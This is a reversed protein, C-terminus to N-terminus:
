QARKDTVIVAPDHPTAYLRAVIKARATLAASQNIYGKDTIEGADMSPPTRLVLARGIRTSSGPNKANYAEFRTRLADLLKREALLDPDNGGNLPGCVKECSELDPFGLVGIYNRDLGAIVADRLLGRAADIVAIRLKGANVWVGTALKFDEAVRGDFILGKEPDDPDAFRAGDGLKYFGEDDFAAATKEADRYYGPTICAGRARVEMKSGVPSLKIEVGPLPLGLLGMQDTPWQVSMITPATETAGYGSLFLIREGCAKVAINQMREAMERGMAAGGYALNRLRSFFTKALDPEAEFADALMGYAIPVNSYVTPAVDRLAAITEDFRGPLPRGRDLYLTSGRVLATNLIASGGFVHNWPLWSLLVHHDFGPPDVTLKAGMVSNICIMGHTTIVAKPMATSGSTFLYKAVTDWNLGAERAASEPGPTARLLDDYGIAGPPPNVRAIMKVNKFGPRGALADLARAYPKADEVFIMQPRILDFAHILKAFDASMLSWAESVPAIAAGALNAAYHIVAHPISNGSLIMLRDGAKLGLEILGAAAAAIQKEAQAYTLTTWVGPRAPGPPREALCVRDGFEGANKRLPAILNPPPDGMPNLNRLLIEGNARREADLRIPLFDVKRFPPLATM